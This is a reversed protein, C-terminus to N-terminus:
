SAKVEAARRDFRVPVGKAPGLFNAIWRARAIYGDELRFEARMLVRSLVLKMEYIALAAGICHRTGGGFPFFHQSPHRVELFRSPNFRNPEEWLDTRHHVLYICPALFTGATFETKGLRMSRTLRRLVFPFIPAVRLIEKVTADLYPLAAIHAQDFGDGGAGEIERRLDGLVKPDGYIYYVAWALATATTDNGAAVMTLVEDLIEQEALGAGTEDRADMLAALVDNRVGVPEIRRQAMENAIARYIENRLRVFQRWPTLPGL